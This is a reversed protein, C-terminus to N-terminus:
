EEGGKAQLRMLVTALEARTTTGQPDLRDGTKGTLVGGGAVSALARQAWHSVLAADSYAALSGDERSSGTYKQYQYLMVALEERTVLQEPAFSGAGTGHAIDNEAAWIVAAAYYADQAVDTYPPRVGFTQPSGQLRYLATVAMARTVASEPEFTTASAGSFLGQACAAYVAERAWHGDLDTFDPVSVTYKPTDDPAAPEEGALPQYLVVTQSAGTLTEGDWVAEHEAFTYLEGGQAKVLKGGEMATLGPTQIAAAQMAATSGVATLEGGLIQIEHDAQVAVTDSSASVTGGRMTIDGGRGEEDALALLTADASELNLIGDTLVLDGGEVRMAHSNTTVKLSAPTDDELHTRTTITLTGGKLAIAPSKGSRLDNRGILQITVDEEEPLLICGSKGTSDIDVGHLTLLKSDHNWTWGERTMRNDNKDAKRLDIVQIQKHNWDEVALATGPLMTSGIVAALLAALLKTKM